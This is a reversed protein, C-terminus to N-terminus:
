INESNRAASGWRVSFSYAGVRVAYGRKIYYKIIRSLTRNNIENDMQMAACNFGLNVHARIMRNLLIIYRNYRFWQFKQRKAKM